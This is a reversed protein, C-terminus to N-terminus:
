PVSLRPQALFDWSGRIPRLEYGLGELFHIIDERTSTLGSSKRKENDWIEVIIFPHYKKITEVAGKLVGEECGECDIKILVIDKWQFSDIDIGKEGPRTRLFHPIIEVNRINNMQLNKKLISVWYAEAEIAYVKYPAVLRALTVTHVGINAGVDIVNGQHHLLEQFTEVVHNEWMGGRCITKQVHGRGESYFYGLGRVYYIGFCRRERKWYFFFSFCLFVGILVISGFM